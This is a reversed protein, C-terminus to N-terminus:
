DQLESNQIIPDGTVVVPKPKSRVPRNVKPQPQPEQEDPDGEKISKAKCVAVERYVAIRISCIARSLEDLSTSAANEKTWDSSRSKMSELHKVLFRDSETTSLEVSEDLSIGGVAEEVLADRIAGLVPMLCSMLARNDVSERAMLRGFSDSFWRGHTIRIPDNKPAPKPPTAGKGAGDQFTPDIPTTVLTMNVPMWYEEAWPENIPNLGELARIDNTNLYGNVKGSANFKERSASDGRRLGSVDFDTFFKNVPTRGIGKHPFLKRKYELNIANLWPSLTYDLLEQNEQETSSKSGKSTDGVFRVPIHLLSAIDNRVYSRTEISQAEQANNSMPTWKTGPRVVAVRHANEGGQAEMWTKRAAERQKDDVNPVELMGGPKAYNAFYKAGFKETALALGLLQRCLWVFSQSVRGDFSLGPVHIMDAAPIIRAASSRAEINSSDYTDIGDTTEYVMEGERVFVPFPRWPEPKLFMSQLMRRPHTKDPNRPWFAVADNGSDRQIEQYGVGWALCHAMFTKFLTQHTMELNPETTLMDYYDHEYALRHIARGNAPSISREYINFPLSAVKSAILDVCTLFTSVSFATYESVRIGSDTRGGNWMDMLFEAPYSLPTQPNELSSREEIPSNWDRRIVALNSM